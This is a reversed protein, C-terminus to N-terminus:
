SNANMLSFKFESGTQRDALGLDDRALEERRAPAAAPKSAISALQLFIPKLRQFRQTARLVACGPAADLAVREAFASGTPGPADRTSLARGM